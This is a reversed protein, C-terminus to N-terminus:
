LEGAEPWNRWNNNPQMEPRWKTIDKSVLIEAIMQFTENESPKPGGYANIKTHFWNDIKMILPLGVPLFTRLEEETARFLNPHNEDLYRVLSPFDIQNEPNDFDQIDIGIKQYEEMKQEVPLIKNRISISEVSKSVLEFGEAICDFEEAILEISYTNTIFQSDLGANTPNTICNGMYDLVIEAKGSRNGFGTKEFVIAWDKKNGFLNIRSGSTYFYGHELDLFYEYLANNDLDSLIEKMTYM